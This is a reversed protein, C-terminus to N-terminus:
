KLVDDVEIGVDNIHLQALDRGRLKSDTGLNFLVLDRVRDFIELRVYIAWIERSRLPVKQEVLKGKNSPTSQGFGQVQNSMM